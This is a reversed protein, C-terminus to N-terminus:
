KATPLSISHPRLYTDTSDLHPCSLSESDHIRCKRPPRQLSATSGFTPPHLIWIPSLYRSLCQICSSTLCSQLVQCCTLYFIPTTHPQVVSCCLALPPLFCVFLSAAGLGIKDTDPGWGFKNADIGLVICLGAELNVWQDSSDYCSEFARNQIPFTRPVDPYLLTADNMWTFVSSDILDNSTTSEGFPVVANEIQTPFVSQEMMQPDFEPYESGCFPLFFSDCM